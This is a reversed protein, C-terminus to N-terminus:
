QFVLENTILVPYYDVGLMVAWDVNAPVFTVSPALKSVTKLDVESKVNTVLCLSNSEALKAAYQKVWNKSLDDTGVICVPQELEIAMMSDELSFTDFRQARMRSHFPYQSENRLDIGEINMAQAEEALPDAGNGSYNTTTINQAFSATFATMTLLTAAIFKNKM